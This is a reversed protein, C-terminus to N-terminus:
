ETATIVPAESGYTRLNLQRLASQNAADQEDLTRQAHRTEAIVTRYSFDLLVDEEARGDASTAAIEGDPGLVIRASPEGDDLLDIQYTTRCYEKNATSREDIQTFVEELQSGDATRTGFMTYEVSGNATQEVDRVSRARYLESLAAFESKIREAPQEYLADLAASLEDQSKEDLVLRGDVTNGKILELTTSPASPAVEALNAPIHETTKM